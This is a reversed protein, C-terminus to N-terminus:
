KGKGEVKRQADRVVRLFLNKVGVFLLDFGMCLLGFLIPEVGLPVADTVGNVTNIALNAAGYFTYVCYLILYSYPINLVLSIFKKPPFMMWRDNAGPLKEFFRIMGNTLIDTAFAMAMGLIFLMDIMNGVYTGLGWFFFFCVAGSIWAKIFIIKVWDAVRIWKHSRYKDLEEASYRKSKGKKADLLDNMAASKLEYYKSSADPRVKQNPEPIKNAM